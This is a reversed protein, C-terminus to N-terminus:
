GRILIFVAGASIDSEFLRDSFYCTIDLCQGRNRPMLSDPECAFSAAPLRDGATHRKICLLIIAECQSVRFPM